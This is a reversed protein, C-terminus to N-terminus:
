TPMFGFKELASLVSESLNCGAIRYASCERRIPYCRRLLDFGAGIDRGPDDCLSRLDCDDRLIDYVGPLAVSIAQLPNEIDHLNIRPVQPEPLKKQYDWEPTARSFQCWAQYLRNTARLKGDISYGAIHPTAIVVKAVLEPDIDPENEWVDLIAYIDNYRILRKKLASEDYVDGRSTNIFIAGSKLSDIFGSNILGHTPYRGNRELPVHVTVIDACSITQMDVFGAAGEREARPPDCVLCTLGMAEFRVRVRSGVNGCGIIGVNAGALDLHNRRACLLVSAIVYEAASVANCGPANVFEVGRSQLWSLDVHDTGITASGVFGVRSGNLLECNVRTVSRVLLADADRIDSTRMERGPLLRVEAFASFAETVAPINEDAVLLM